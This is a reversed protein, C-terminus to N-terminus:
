LSKGEDFNLVIDLFKEQKTKSVGCTNCKLSTESYGAFCKDVLDQFSTLLEM